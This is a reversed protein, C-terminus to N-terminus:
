TASELALQDRLTERRRAVRFRAGDVIVEPARDRSNYNSSQVFGYAGATLIALLAGPELDLERDLALFDGSECVPGVVDWTSRANRSARVPEIAHWASYLTPRILDNMAADVVAFSRGDPEQAPKLYEVRTLLLGGNAVLFRGPELV